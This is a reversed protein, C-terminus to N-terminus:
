KAGGKTTLLEGLIRDDLKNRVAELELMLRTIEANAVALKSELSRAFDVAQKVSCNGVLMWSFNAMVWADTLPTKTPPTGAVPAPKMALNCSACLVHQPFNEYGCHPCPTKLPPQPAPRLDVWGTDACKALAREGGFCEPPGDAQGAGPPRSEKAPANSVPSLVANWEANNAEIADYVSRPLSYAFDGQDNWHEFLASFPWTKIEEWDHVSGKCAWELGEPKEKLEALWGPLVKVRANRPHAPCLESHKNYKTLAGCNPMGCCVAEPLPTSVMAMTGLPACWQFRFDIAPEFPKDPANDDAWHDNSWFKMGKQAGHERLFEPTLIEYGKPAEANPNDTTM